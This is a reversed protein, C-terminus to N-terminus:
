CKFAKMFEYTLGDCSTGGDQFIHEQFVQREDAHVCLGISPCPRPARSVVHLGVLLCSVWLELGAISVGDELSGKM